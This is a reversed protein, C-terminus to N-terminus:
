RGAKLGLEKIGKYTTVGACLLPAAQVPNLSTPIKVVFKSYAVLYEEHAGDTNYGTYTATPCFNEKGSLCYECCSCASHLWPVGVIDGIKIGYDGDAKPPITYGSNRMRQKANLVDIDDNDTNIDGGIKVVEGIGEHGTVLPYKNKLPWDENMIHLDTHCVGSAIVRILIEGSKLNDVDDVPLKVDPNLLANSKKQIQFAKMKKPLTTPMSSITKSISLLLFLLATFYSSSLM